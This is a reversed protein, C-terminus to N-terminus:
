DPRPGCPSPVLLHRTRAKDDSNAFCIGSALLWVSGIDGVCGIFPSDEESSLAKLDKTASRVNESENGAVFDESKTLLQHSLTKININKPHERNVVGSDDIECAPLEANLSFNTASVNQPRPHFFYWFGM